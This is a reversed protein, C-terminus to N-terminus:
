VSACESNLFLLISLSHCGEAFVVEAGELLRAEPEVVQVFGEAGEVPFDVGRM